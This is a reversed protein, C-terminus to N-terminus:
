VSWLLPPLWTIKSKQVLAFSQPPAPSFLAPLPWATEKGTLHFPKLVPAHVRRFHSSSRVRVTWYDELGSRSSCPHWPKSHIHIPTSHALMLQTNLSEIANGICDWFCAHDWQHFGAKKHSHPSSQTRVKIRYMLVENQISNYNNYQNLNQSSVIRYRM